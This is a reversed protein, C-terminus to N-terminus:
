NPSTPLGATAPTQLIPQKRRHVVAQFEPLRAIEAALAAAIRYNGNGTLHNDSEWVMLPYDRSPLHRSLDLAQIGLDRCLDELSNRWREDAVAHDGYRKGYAPLVNDYGYILGLKRPRGLRALYQERLIAKLLDFSREIQPHDCGAVGYTQVLPVTGLIPKNEAPVSYAPYQNDPPYGVLNGAADFDFMQYPSHEKDWGILNRLMGPELHAMNFPNLFLLVLDPHFRSGYKEFGRAYSAPSSSSSASVIVEVPVGFRRRLMSEVLVNLHECVPTQEAETWCEGQVFIRIAQDPNDFSRDRDLRGFNNVYDESLYCRKSGLCGAYFHLSHPQHIAELEARVADISPSSKPALAQTVPQGVFGPPRPIFPSRPDDAHIHYELDNRGVQVLRGRLPFYRIGDREYAIEVVADPPVDTFIFWGGRTTSTRRVKGGPLTLTVTERDQNPYLRGGVVLGSGNHPRVGRAALFEVRDFWAADGAVAQELGFVLARVEGRPLRKPAGAPGKLDAFDLVVDHYDTDDRFPIQWGQRQGRDGETAVAETGDALTWAFSVRSRPNTKRYAFRIFGTENSSLQFPEWAVKSAGDRAARVELSYQGAYAHHSRFYLSAGDPVMRGNQEYFDVEDFVVTPTTTDVVTVSERGTHDAPNRKLAPLDAGDV